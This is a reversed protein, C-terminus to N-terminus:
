YTEGEEGVVFASLMDAMEKMKGIAQPCPNGTYIEGHRYTFACEIEGHKWIAMNGSMLLVHGDPTTVSIENTAKLETDAAILAQWSEESIGPTEDDNEPHERTIFLNYSM